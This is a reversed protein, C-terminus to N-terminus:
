KAPLKVSFVTAGPRSEVAISGGAEEIFRKSIALGLGCGAARTSYFPEFIRAVEGEPIGKGTDTISIEAGDERRSVRVGLRGSDPMAEAANLVLNLVVQELHSPDITANVAGEPFERAVEIGRHALQRHMLKLVKDAAEAVDVEAPRGAAPKAYDLLGGTTLRLREIEDQLIELSERDSGPAGGALMMEVTMKMATLPNRVEHAIGAALAGLTALKEKRVLEERSARLSETMRNFDEALQQLEDRTNVSIQSSLDGAAIQAASAALKRLPRTISRAIFWGALNVLLVGALAAFLIPSVAEWQAARVVAADYLLVLGREPGRTMPAFAGYFERGAIEGQFVGVERDSALFRDLAGPLEGALAPQLNSQNVKWDDAVTALGVDLVDGMSALASESLPFGTGSILRALTSIRSRVQKEVAAAAIQAATFATFAFVIVM